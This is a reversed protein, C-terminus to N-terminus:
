CYFNYIMGSYPSTQYPSSFSKGPNKYAVVTKDVYEMPDMSISDTKRLLSSAFNKLNQITTQSAEEELREENVLLSGDQLTQIGVSALEQKYYGAIKNIDSLLKRGRQLTESADTTNKLFRNYGEVLAHVNDSLSETDNKLGVRIEENENTVKKLNVAFMKDVTFTNSATSQEKGNILFEANQPMQVNKDLGLYTVAGSLRKTQGYSANAYGASQADYIHFALGDELAHVPAGTQTSSVVLAANEPNKEDAVIEARLGINSNNMLREIREQIQRNTEGENVGFQFEYSKEGVSVDFSYNGPQLKTESDPLFAGRNEQSTALSRVAITFGSAPEESTKAYESLYEAEVADSNSSYATKKQLLDEGDGLSYIVSKLAHAQEKAAIAFSKTEVSNDQLYWPSERNIRKINGSLTKLEGKRHADAPTSGVPAYTTMYQAYVQNLLMNSMATEKRCTIKRM